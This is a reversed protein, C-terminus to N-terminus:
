GGKAELVQEASKDATIFQWQDQHAEDFAGLYSGQNKSSEGEQSLTHKESDILVADFFGRVLYRGDTLRYLQTRAYGGTDPSMEVRRDPSGPKRLVLVRRYEALYPHLPELQVVVSSNTGPLKAVAEYVPPFLYNFSVLGALLSALILLTVTTYKALRKM